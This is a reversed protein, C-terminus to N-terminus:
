IQKLEIKEDSNIVVMHPTQSWDDTLLVRAGCELTRDIPTHLHGFIYCDCPTTAHICEVHEIISELAIDRGADGHEIHKKRSSCSWWHGFKLLWDPHLLESFLARVFPSHFLYNMFRLSYNKRVKLNDGHALYVRKTGIDFIMPATYVEMGCETEFYNGVWQDHNGTMFIVRVGSDTLSAIRGLIRVFGKPAVRKHEFWFDFIDGNLFIAKASGAVSDLWEAFRAQTAKAEAKTGAGLHVDSIFYYM